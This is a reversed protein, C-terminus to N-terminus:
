KKQVLHNVTRIGATRAADQLAIVTGWTVDRADLLMETKREDGRTYPRLAEVFKEADLTKGDDKMVAAKQGEVRVTVKGSSPEGQAQVNVMRKKVDDPSIKKTGHKREHEGAVTPLPVVKRDMAAPIDIAVNSSSSPGDVGTTRQMGFVGAAIPLPM